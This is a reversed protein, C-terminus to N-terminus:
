SIKTLNKNELRYVSDFNKLIDHKHTVIIITLDKYFKCLNFIVENEIKPDLASTPEDMILLKSKKYFSRALNVRQRQGLSLKIGNEGVESYKGKELNDVFFKACAKELALNVKEDNEINIAEDKGFIVNEYITGDILFPQQPVYSFFKNLDSFSTIHNSNLIVKGINPELLGLIIDLLTSKGSGTEGIIAIKERKKISFNIKEFIINSNKEYSFSVNELRLLENDDLKSIKLFFEKNKKSELGEKIELFINDISNKTFKISQINTHMRSFAPLVRLACIGCLTLIPITSAKDELTISIFFIVVLLTSILIFEFFLRPFSQFTVFKIDQNGVNEDYKKFFNVVKSETNSIKITKIGNFIELLYRTLLSINKSRINGIGLNYKRLITSFLFSSFFLFIIFILSIKFNIFLVAGSIAFLIFFELFFDVLHRLFFSIRETENKINTVLKGTTKNTIIKYSDKLYVELLGSSLKLQIQTFLKNKYFQFFGVIVLKLIALFFIILALLIILKDHSFNLSLNVFNFKNLYFIFKNIDLILIVLPFVSFLSLLDFIFNSISLFFLFMFKTKVKEISAFNILFIIKDYIIFGKKISSIIM